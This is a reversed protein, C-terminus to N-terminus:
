IILDAKINGLEEWTREELKFAPILIRVFESRKSNYLFSM